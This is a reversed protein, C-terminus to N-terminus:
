RIKKEAATLPTSNKGPPTRVRGPSTDCNEARAPVGYTLRVDHQPQQCERAVAAGREVL